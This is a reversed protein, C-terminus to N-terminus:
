PIIKKPVLDRRNESAGLAAGSAAPPILALCSSKMELSNLFLECHKASTKGRGLSAVGLQAM